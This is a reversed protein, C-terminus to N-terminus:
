RHLGVDAPGLHHLVIALDHRRHGRGFVHDAARSARHGVILRHTVREGGARHVVAVERVGIVALLILADRPEVLVAHLETVGRAPWGRAGPLRAHIAAVELVPDDQHVRLAVACAGDREFGIEY